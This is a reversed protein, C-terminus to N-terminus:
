WTTPFRDRGCRSAARSTERDAETVMRAMSRAEQSPRDGAVYLVPRGDSTVPYSLVEERMGLRALVLQQAITTKGVGTPGNILLPEGQAWLVEDGRGWVPVVEAPTDLIFAAGDIHARQGAGLLALRLLDREGGGLDGRHDGGPDVVRHDGPDVVRHDEPGLDVSDDQYDAPPEPIPEDDPTVWNESLLPPLMRRPM